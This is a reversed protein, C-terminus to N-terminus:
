LCRGGLLANEGFRGDPVRVFTAYLLVMLTPWLLAERIPWRRDM